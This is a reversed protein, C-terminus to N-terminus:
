EQKREETLSSERLAHLDNLRRERAQDAVEDLDSM